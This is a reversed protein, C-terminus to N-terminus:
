NLQINKYVMKFDIQDTTQSSILSKDIQEATISDDNVLIYRTFETYDASIYNPQEEYKKLYKYDFQYNQGDENYELHYTSGNYSLEHVFLLPYEEKAKEYYSESYQSADGLTYYYALMVSTEKGKKSNEVFDDWIEQGSTIENDEFVVMGDAKADELTYDETIDELSITSTKEKSCAILSLTCLCFVALFLYNRRLRKMSLRWIISHFM